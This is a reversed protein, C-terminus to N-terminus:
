LAATSKIGSMKRLITIYFQQLALTQSAIALKKSIGVTAVMVFANLLTQVGKATGILALTTVYLTIEV